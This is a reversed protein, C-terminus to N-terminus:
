GTSHAFILRSAISSAPRPSSMVKKSREPNVRLGPIAVRKQSPSWICVQSSYSPILVATTPSREPPTEPNLRTCLSM